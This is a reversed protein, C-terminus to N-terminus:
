EIIYKEKSVNIKCLTLIKGLHDYIKILYRVFFHYGLIFIVPLAASYLLIALISKIVGIINQKSSTAQVKGRLLARRLMFSKTCRIEPVSEYVPAEECWVFMRKLDIMRKFFDKDEGGSGFKPNFATEDEKFLNKKLLTNGSRTENWSLIKGTKLSPREYFKGKIIWQPPKKEYHPLVPGLTGDAKFKCLFNYHNFLWTSEVFEDDDVFAIFDGKANKVAMNRALAINQEPEVYYETAILSNQKFSNVISRASQLLDNDVVVISITFQDETILEKLTNLLRLLLTPRKFTCICISIQQKTNKM